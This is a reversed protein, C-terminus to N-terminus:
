EGIKVKVVVKKVNAPKEVCLGPMHGDQPYFIAFYGNGLTLEIPNTNATYFAAEAEEQYPKTEQLKEKPLSCIKETGKLLFQIDIYKRHAEYKGDDKTTYEQVNAYLNEGDIEYKGNEINKLDTSRLWELGKKLNLSIPYYIEANELRDKIM